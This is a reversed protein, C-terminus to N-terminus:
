KKTPDLPIIIWAILYGIFFPVIGTLLMLIVTIIRLLSSDMKYRKGMGGLIGGIMRDKRSRYLRKM